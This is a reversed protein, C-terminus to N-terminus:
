VQKSELVKHERPSAFFLHKVRAFPDLDGPGKDVHLFGTLHVNGHDWLQELLEGDELARILGEGLILHEHKMLDIDIDFVQDSLILQWGEEKLDERSFNALHGVGNVLLPISGKVRFNLLFDGHLKKLQSNLEFLVSM